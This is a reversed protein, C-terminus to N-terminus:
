ELEVKGKEEAAERFSRFSAGQGLKAKHCKDLILSRSVAPLKKLKQLRYDVMGCAREMETNHAPTEDM